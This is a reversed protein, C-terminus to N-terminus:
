FKFTLQGLARAGCINQSTGYICDSRSISTDYYGVSATITNGLVPLVFDRSLSISWWAYDPTGFRRNNDIWQYGVRGGLTVDWIGTKWDAGGEIYIGTGSTGFYNPSGNLAASLTVPGIERTAKLYAEFYDLPYTGPARTYGPYLYGIGGIDFNFDFASFRYGGYADVEQRADTYAFRVNSIFTGVYFGSSHVLEAAGQYAMRSRTQSIGRFLYDSAVTATPSLTLGTEGLVIQASAPAAAGLGAAATLALLLKRM